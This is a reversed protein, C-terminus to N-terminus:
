RRRVRCPSSSARLRMRGPSTSRSSFRAERRPPPWRGPTRWPARRPASTYTFSANPVAVACAEVTPIASSQRRIGTEEHLALELHEGLEELRGLPWERRDEAAGLHGVLDGDDVVQEGLDVQEDEAAPHGVGEQQRLALADALAEGLVVADIVRLPDEVPRSAPRGCRGGTSTITALSTVRPVSYLAGQRSSGPRTACRRCPHWDSSSICSASTSARVMKQFPGSPTNSIGDNACPVFAIARVTASRAACPAVTTTPPPSETAAIVLLPQGVPHRVDRGAPARRELEELAALQRTHGHQEVLDFFRRFCLSTSPSPSAM